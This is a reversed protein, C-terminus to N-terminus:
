NTRESSPPFREITPSEETSERPVGLDIEVDAVRMIEADFFVLISDNSDDHWKRFADIVKRAEQIPLSEATTILTKGSDFVLIQYRSM